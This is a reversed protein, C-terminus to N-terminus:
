RSRTGPRSSPSGRASSCARHARRTSTRVGPLRALEVVELRRSNSVTVLARAPAATASVADTLKGAGLWGQLVPQGNTGCVGVVSIASQAGRAQSLDADAVLVYRGDPTVALGLPTPGVRTVSRLARAPDGRLLAPASYGLLANGDRVTVWVMRGDPSVAVRVPACPVTISALVSSAGPASVAKALEIVSLAGARRANTQRASESVVYLLRGDPSVAVGLAGAGAPAAGIFRGKARLDFTALAGAGELTVFAYRSNASIAVEAAGPGSGVVPPPAALRGRVASGTGAIAAAVDVVVAGRGAAGLLLRGDPTVGLGSPYAPVAVTRLLLEGAPRNAIVAIRPQGSQIAIFSFRGDPTTAVGDPTGPLPLAWAAPGTPAAGMLARGMAPAEGCSVRLAAARRPAHTHSASGAGCAALALGLAAALAVALAAVVVAPVRM